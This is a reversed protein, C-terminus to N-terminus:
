LEYQYCHDYAPPDCFDLQKLKEAKQKSKVTALLRFLALAVAYDKDKLTFIKESINETSQLHDAHPLHDKHELDHPFPNCSLFLVFAM